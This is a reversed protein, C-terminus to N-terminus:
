GVSVLDWVMGRRLILIVCAVIGPQRLHKLKNTNQHFGNGFAVGDIGNNDPFDIPTRALGQPAAFPAKTESRATNFPASVLAASALASKTIFNRRSTM